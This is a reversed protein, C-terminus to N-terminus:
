SKNYIGFVSFDKNQYLLPFSKIKIEENKQVIYNFNWKKRFEVYYADSFLAIGKRNIESLIKSRELNRSKNRQTYLYQQGELLSTILRPREALSGWAGYTSTGAEVVFTEDIKSNNKAWIQIDKYSDYRSNRNETEQIKNQFAITGIFVIIPITIFILIKPKMFLFMGLIVFSSSYFTTISLLELNVYSQPSDVLLDHILFVITRFGDFNNIINIIQKAIERYRLDILNLSYIAILLLISSYAAEKSFHLRKSSMSNTKVNGLISLFLLTILCILMSMKSGLLFTSIVVYLILRDQLSYKNKILILKYIIDFIVVYLSLILILSIRGWSISAFKTIELSYFVAQFLYYLLNIAIIFKFFINYSFLKKANYLNSLSFVIGVLLLAMLLSQVTLLYSKEDPNIIWARFHQNSLVSKQESVSEYNSSITLLSLYGILFFAVPGVLITSNSLFKIKKDFKYDQLCSLLFIAFGFVIGMSVHMSSGLAVFSIALLKKNMIKLGLGVMLPGLALWTVYPMFEQDGYFAWNNFHPRTVCFFLVMLLAIKRNRVISFTLVFVGLTLFMGQFALFFLQLFQRSIDINLYGLLAPVWKSASTWRLQWWSISWYDEYFLDFRKTLLYPIVPGDDMSTLALSSDINLVSMYQYAAGILLSILVAIQTKRSSTM